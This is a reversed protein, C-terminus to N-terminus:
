HRVPNIQRNEGDQTKEPESSKKAPEKTFYKRKGSQDSPKEDRHAITFCRGEPPRLIPLYRRKKEFPRREYREKERNIKEKTQGAPQKM